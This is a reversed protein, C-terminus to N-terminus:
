LEKQFPALSQSAIKLVAARDPDNLKEGAVFRERIDSTIQTSAVCLAQEGARMKELPVGDFLGEILALLV